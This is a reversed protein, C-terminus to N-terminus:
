NANLAIKMMGSNCHGPISCIFYNPGKALTIRDAGSEYFKSGGLAVCSNYGYENVRVVNHVEPTYNFVARDFYYYLM